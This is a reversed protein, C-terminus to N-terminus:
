VVVHGVSIYRGEDDRSGMVWLEINTVDWTGLNIPLPPPVVLPSRTHNQTADTGSAHGVSSSAEAPKIM